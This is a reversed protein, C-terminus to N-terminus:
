TALRIFIHIGVGDAKKKIEPLFDWEQSNGKENSL